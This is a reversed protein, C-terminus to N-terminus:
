EGARPVEEPRIIVNDKKRPATFRPIARNDVPDNRRTVLGMSTRTPALAFLTTRLEGRTPAFTRTPRILALARLKERM